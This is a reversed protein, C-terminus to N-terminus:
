KRLGSSICPFASMGEGEAGLMGDPQMQTFCRSQFRVEGPCLRPSQKQLSLCAFPCTLWCRYGTGPLSCARHIPLPLVACVAREQAHLIQPQSCASRGSVRSFFPVYISQMQTAKTALFHRGIDLVVPASSQM